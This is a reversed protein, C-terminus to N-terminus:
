KREFFKLLVGNSNDIIHKCAIAKMRPNISSFVYVIEASTFYEFILRIIEIPLENFTTMIFSHILENYSYISLVSFDAYIVNLSM